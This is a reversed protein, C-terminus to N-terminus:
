YQKLVTVNSIDNVIVPSTVRRYLSLCNRGEIM